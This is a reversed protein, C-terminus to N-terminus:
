AGSGILTAAQPRARRRASVCRWIADKLWSTDRPISQKLGTNETHYHGAYSYEAALRVTFAQTRWVMRPPRHAGAGFVEVGTHYVGIGVRNITYNMIM